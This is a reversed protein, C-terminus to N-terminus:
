RCCTRSHKGPRSPLRSPSCISEITRQGTHACCSGTGAPGRFRLGCAAIADRRRRMRVQLKWSTQVPPVLAVSRGPGIPFLDGFAGRKDRLCGAGSAVRGIPAASVHSAASSTRTSQKSGHAAAPLRWTRTHHHHRTAHEAGYTGLRAASHDNQKALYIILCMSRHHYSMCTDPENWFNPRQATTKSSMPAVTRTPFALSWRDGINPRHGHLCSQM